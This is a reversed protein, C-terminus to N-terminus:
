VVASVKDKHLNGDLLFAKAETLQASDNLLQQKKTVPAGKPAAPSPRKKSPGGGGGAAKAKPAAPATTKIPKAKVPRKTPKAKGKAASAKSTSRRTMPPEPESEDTDDGTSEGSESHGSSEYGIPMPQRKPKSSRSPAEEEDYVSADSDDDGNANHVVHSPPGKFRFTHLSDGAALHVGQTAVTGARTCYQLVGGNELADAERFFSEVTTGRLEKNKIAAKAVTPVGKDLAIQGAYVEFTQQEKSRKTIIWVV